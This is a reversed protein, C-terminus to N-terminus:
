SGDVPEERDLRRRVNAVMRELLASAMMREEPAFGETIIAEWAELVKQIEQRREHALSTLKLRYARKDSEHDERVVLGGEVLSDIARKIAAKDVGVHAALEEQSQGDHRFLALLPSYTAASLGIPELERTLYAQSRRYLISVSRGLRREGRGHKPSSAIM